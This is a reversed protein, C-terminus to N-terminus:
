CFGSHEVADINFYKKPLASLLRPLLKASPLVEVAFESVLAATKGHVSCTRYSGTAKRVGVRGKAVSCIKFYKFFGLPLLTSTLLTSKALKVRQVEGFNVM